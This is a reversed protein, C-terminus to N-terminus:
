AGSRTKSQPPFRRAVGPPDWRVGFDTSRAVVIAHDEEGDPALDIRRWAITIAGTNPAVVITAGQNRAQEDVVMQSAAASM